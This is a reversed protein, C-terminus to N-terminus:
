FRGPCMMMMVAVDQEGAFADPSRMMMDNIFDREATSRVPAEDREDRRTAPWAAGTSGPLAAPLWARPIRLATVM